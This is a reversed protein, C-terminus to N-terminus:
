SRGGAEVLRFFIYVAFLNGATGLLGYLQVFRSEPLELAMSAALALIPACTYVVQLALGVGQREFVNIVSSTGSILLATAYLPSLWLALMGAPGWVEGFVLAFLREGLVGPLVIGTLSVLCLLWLSRRLLLGAAQSDDRRDRLERTLVSAMSGAFLAGAIGLMRTALAFQGMVETGYLFSVCLGAIVTSNLLSGAIYFRPFASYRGALDRLEKMRTPVSDVTRALRRALGWVQALGGALQGFLMGGSGAQLVGGLVQTASQVTAQTVTSQAMARYERLRNAYALLAAVIGTIFVFVPVFVLQPGIGKLEPLAMPLLLVSMAVLGALLATACTMALALRVIKVAESDDEPLIVALHYGWTAWPAFVAAGTAVLAYVGLEQPTYLRTLFPSVGLTVIQALGSAGVLGSLHRVNASRWRRWPPSGAM